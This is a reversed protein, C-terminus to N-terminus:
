DRYIETGKCLHKGIRLCSTDPWAIRETEKSEIGMRCTKKTPIVISLIMEAPQSKASITLWM